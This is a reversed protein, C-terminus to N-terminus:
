EKKEKNNLSLFSAISKARAALKLAFL